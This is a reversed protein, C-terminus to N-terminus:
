KIQIICTSFPPSRGVTWTFELKCPLHYKNLGNNPSQCSKHPIDLCIVKRQCLLHIQFLKTNESLVGPQRLLKLSGHSGLSLSGPLGPGFDHPRTPFLFGGIGELFRGVNERLRWSGELESIKLNLRLFEVLILCISCFSYAAAVKLKKICDQSFRSSKEEIETQTTCKISKGHVGCIETSLM